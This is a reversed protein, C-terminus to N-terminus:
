PWGRSTSAAEFRPHGACLGAMVIQFTVAHLARRCSRDIIRCLGPTSDDARFSAAFLSCGIGSLGKGPPL